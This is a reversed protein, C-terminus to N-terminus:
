RAGGVLCHHLRHIRMQIRDLDQGPLLHLAAVLNARHSRRFAGVQCMQMKLHSETGIHVWALSVGVRGQVTHCGLLEDSNMLTSLILCEILSGSILLIQLFIIQHIGM